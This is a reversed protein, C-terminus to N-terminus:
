TLKMDNNVNITKIQDITSSNACDGLLPSGFWLQGGTSQLLIKFFNSKLVVVNFKSICQRVPSISPTIDCSIRPLQHVHSCNRSMSLLFGMELSPSGYIASTILLIKSCISLYGIYSHFFQLLTVFNTIQAGHLDVQHCSKTHKTTQGTPIHPVNICCLVIQLFPFHLVFLM